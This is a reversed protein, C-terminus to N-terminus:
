IMDYTCVCVYMCVYMYVYMCIYVYAFVKEDWDFHGRSVARKDYYIRKAYRSSEQLEEIKEKERQMRIFPHQRAYEEIQRNEKRRQEKEIERQLWKNTM